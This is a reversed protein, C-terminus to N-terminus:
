IESRNELIGDSRSGDSVAPASFVFFRVAFDYQPRQPCDFTYLWELDKNCNRLKSMLEAARENLYFNCALSAESTWEGNEVLLQKTARNRILKRM